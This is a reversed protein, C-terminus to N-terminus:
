IRTVGCPKVFSVDIRGPTNFVASPPPKQKGCPWIPLRPVNPVPAFYQSLLEPALQLGPQWTATPILGPPSVVLTFLALLVIFMWSDVCMEVLTPMSPLTTPMGNEHVSPMVDFSRLPLRSMANPILAVVPSSSMWRACILENWRFTSKEPQENRDLMAFKTPSKMSENTPWNMMPSSVGVISLRTCLKRGCGSPM